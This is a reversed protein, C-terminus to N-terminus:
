AKALNLMANSLHTKGKGTIKIYVKGGIKAYDAYAKLSRHSILNEIRNDIVAQERDNVSKLDAKKPNIMKLIGEKLTRTSIVEKQQSLVALAPIILQSESVPQRKSM